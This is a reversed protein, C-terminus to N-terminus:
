ECPIAVRQPHRKRADCLGWSARRVEFHKPTQPLPVSQTLLKFFGLAVLAALVVAQALFQPSVSQTPLRGFMGDAVSPTMDNAAWQKTASLIGDALARCVGTDAVTQDFVWLMEQAFRERFAAPHLALLLQYIRRACHLWTM